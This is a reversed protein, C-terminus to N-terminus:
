ESAENNEYNVGMSLLSKLNPIIVKATSHTVCAARLTERRRAQLNRLTETESEGTNAKCQFSCYVPFGATVSYSHQAVLGQFTKTKGTSDLLSASWSGKVEEM